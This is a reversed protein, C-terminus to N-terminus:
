PKRCWLDYMKSYLGPNGRELKAWAYFDRQLPDDPHEEHYAAKLANRPIEFHILRLGLRDLAARVRPM